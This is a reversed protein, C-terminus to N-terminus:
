SWADVVGAWGAPLRLNENASYTGVVSTVMGGTSLAYNHGAVTDVNEPGLNLFPLAFGPFGLTDIQVFTGLVGQIAPGVTSFSIFPALPPDNAVASLTPTTRHGTLTAALCQAPSGPFPITVTPLIVGGPSIFWWSYVSCTAPGITKTVPGASPMIAPGGINATLGVIPPGILNVTFVVLDGVGTVTASPASLTLVPFGLSTASGLATWVSPGPPPPAIANCGPFPTPWTGFPVLEAFRHENSYGGGIDDVWIAQYTRGSGAPIEVSDPGIGNKADQINTAAPFTGWMGGFVGVGASYKALATATLQGPTLACVTTVSPPGSLPLGFRWVKAVLNFNPLSYTKKCAM